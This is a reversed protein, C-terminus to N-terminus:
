PGEGMGVGVDDAWADADSSALWGPLGQGHVEGEEVVIEEAVAEEDGPTGDEVDEDVM